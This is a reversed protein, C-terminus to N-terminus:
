AEGTQAIWLTTVGGVTEFGWDHWLATNRNIKQLKGDKDRFDAGDSNKAVCISLVEELTPKVPTANGTLDETGGIVDKFVRVPQRILTSKNGQDDTEEIEFFLDLYDASIEVGGPNFLALLEATALDLLVSEKALAPASDSWDGARNWRDNGAYALFINAFFAGSQKIGAARASTTPIPDAVWAAGDWRQFTLCLVCQDGRTLVFGETSIRYGTGADRLEKTQKVANFFQQLM